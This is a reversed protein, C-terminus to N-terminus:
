GKERQPSKYYYDKTKAAQHARFAAELVKKSRATMDDKQTVWGGKIRWRLILDL